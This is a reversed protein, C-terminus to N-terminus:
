AMLPYGRTHKWALFDAVDASAMATGIVSEGGGAEPREAEM